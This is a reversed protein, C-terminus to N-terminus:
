NLILTCWYYVIISDILENFGNFGIRIDDDRWIIKNELFRFWNSFNDVTIYDEEKMRKCFCFSYSQFKIEYKSNAKRDHVLKEREM